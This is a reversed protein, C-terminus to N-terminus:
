CTLSLLDRECRDGGVSALGCSELDRILLAAASHWQSRAVCIATDMGCLGNTVGLRQVMVFSDPRSV